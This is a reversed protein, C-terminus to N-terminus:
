RSEKVPSVRRTVLEVQTNAVVEVGGEGFCAVRRREVLHGVCESEGFVVDGVGVPAEVVGM